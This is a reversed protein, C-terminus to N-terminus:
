YKSNSQIVIIQSAKKNQTVCRPAVSGALEEKQKKLNKTSIMIETVATLHKDNKTTKSCKDQTCNKTVIKM